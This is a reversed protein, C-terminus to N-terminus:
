VPLAAAAVAVHRGMRQAAWGPYDDSTTTRIFLGSDTARKDSHAWGDAPRGSPHLLGHTEIGCQCKAEEPHHTVASQERHSHVWLSEWKQLRADVLYSSAAQHYTM